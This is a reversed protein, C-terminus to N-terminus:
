ESRGKNSETKRKANYGGSVLIPNSVEKLYGKHYIEKGHVNSSLTIKIDDTLISM